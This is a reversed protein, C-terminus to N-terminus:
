NFHLEGCKGTGEKVGTVRNMFQGSVVQFRTTLGRLSQTQYVDKYQCATGLRYPQMTVCFRKEQLMM